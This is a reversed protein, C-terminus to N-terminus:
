PRLREQLEGVICVEPVLKIGTSQEVVYQIHLILAEIETATANGTNVIFNAHKTSVCASGICFGKLGCSEILRAAHDHDPNRFVSGCSAQGTPQTQNRRDLLEKIKASGAQVDGSHLAFHAAIFWEGEVRATVKRYSVQFDAPLRHHRRGHTDITEVSQIVAWTEGGFAGANMALAGGVTGPIGSFFEAGILGIKTSFRAVKACPVGAEARLTHASTQQLNELGGHTCIVTGKFGGDRVLLNSGLGIWLLPEAAPLQMLFYQLDEIDAPEYYRQAVGGARWSVHKGMPEAYRLTGRLSNALQQM